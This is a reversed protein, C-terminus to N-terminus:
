PTRVNIARAVKATKFGRRKRFGLRCSIATPTRRPPSFQRPLMRCTHPRAEVEGASDPKKVLRALKHTGIRANKQKRKGTARMVHAPMARPMTPRAIRPILGSVDHPRPKPSPRVTNDDSANPKNMRESSRRPRVTLEDWRVRSRIATVPKGVNN